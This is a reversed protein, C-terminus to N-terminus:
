RLQEVQGEPVQLRNAIRTKRIRVYIVRALAIVPVSLFTGPIGALEAGAFVGFLVLLPHLAVGRRMLQPSLIYDQFVRYGLLFLIVILVPAGSVLSVITIIVGAVFPGLMPIFELMGGLAALLVPYSVGIISFTISYATFAALSLLVLARMYHALLLHVDEMVDDLLARRPGKEVMDLIHQRLMHGDKLFFFSLIPIVVIFVLHTVVSLAKIGATSITALLDGSHEVFFTRLHDIFQDKLANLVPPGASAKEWESLMRPFRQVLSNAQEIVRSGLNIGVFVIVGLFIVYALGLALARTRRVPLVRDILDVLPSLLYALLLALIFVFLTNRIEYVLILAVATLAVTWTYRAARRDFGLM